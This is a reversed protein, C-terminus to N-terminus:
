VFINAFIICYLYYYLLSTAVIKWRGEKGLEEVDDDGDDACWLCPLVVM